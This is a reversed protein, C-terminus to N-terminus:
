ADAVKLPLILGHGRDEFLENLFMRVFGADNEFVFDPGVLHYNDSEGEVPQLTQEGEDSRGTLDIVQAVFHCM